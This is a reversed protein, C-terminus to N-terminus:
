ILKLLIELKRDTAFACTGDEQMIRWVLTFIGEVPPTVFEIRLSVSEGPVVSQKMPIRLERPTYQLAMGNVSECYYNEWTISGTNQITWTHVHVDGAQLICMDAPYEETVKYNNESTDAQKPSNEEVVVFHLGLGLKGPFALNGKKDKAKWNMMYSGPVLPALFSTTLAATDGPYVVPPLRMTLTEKEISFSSFTCEYYRDEWLIKGVNKMIWTHTIVDGARYIGMDAPYENLFLSEDMPNRSDEAFFAQQESKYLYASYIQNVEGPFMAYLIFFALLKWYETKLKGTKRDKLYWELASSFAIDEQQLMQLFVQNAIDASLNEGLFLQCKREIRSIGWPEKLLEKKLAMLFQPEQGSDSFFRSRRAKNNWLKVNLWRIEMPILLEFFAKKSLFHPKKEWVSPQVSEKAPFFIEYVSKLNVGNGGVRLRANKGFLRGMIEANM